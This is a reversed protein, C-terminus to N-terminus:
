EYTAYGEKKESVLVTTGNSFEWTKIVPVGEKSLLTAKGYIFSKKTLPLAMGIGYVVGMQSDYTKDFDNIFSYFVGTYDSVFVYNDKNHQAFLAPTLM